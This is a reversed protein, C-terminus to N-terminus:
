CERVLFFQKGLWDVQFDDWDYATCKDGQWQGEWSVQYINGDEDQADAFLVPHGRGSDQEVDIETTLFLKQDEWQILTGKEM